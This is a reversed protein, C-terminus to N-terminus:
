QLSCSYSMLARYLRTEETSSLELQPYYMSNNIELQARAFGRNGGVKNLGFTFINAEKIVILHQPFLGFLFMDHGESEQPYGFPMM